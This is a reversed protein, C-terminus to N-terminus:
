LQKRRHEITKYLNSLRNKPKFNFRNKKGFYRSKSWKRTAIGIQRVTGIKMNWRSEFFHITLNRHNKIRMFITVNFITV